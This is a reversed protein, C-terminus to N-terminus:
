RTWEWLTTGCDYVRVWGNQEMIEVETKSEDVNDEGLLKKLFRRQTSVRSLSEDTLPNVWRYSPGNNHVFRFGLLPYLNGRTHARDSFSRIRVPNYRRVYYSFLKSAGGVVSTNIMNCFRTLEVCDSLDEAGTGMTTRMKSFTMVSVLNDRYYLGLRVSSTCSGQRHNKDLFEKCRTYSIEAVKTDRAYIKNNNVGCINSIMSKIIDKKWNWEYGFIHYLFIGKNECALTKNLHYEVPKGTAAHIGTTSNHTYTPNMEIGLRVDPIYIDLEMPTIIKFTNRMISKEPLISVLFEYLEDEARSYHYSTINNLNRTNLIYGISSEVVGCRNSLESLTPKHNFNSRIYSEPDERFAILEDIKSPDTMRRSLFYRSRSVNDSGYRLLNTKRVSSKHEDTQTHWEKGYRELNTKKAKEIYEPTKVYRSVGYRKLSTETIKQQCERTQVYNKVGYKKLCTEQRKKVWKDSNQKYKISSVKVRCEKSCTIPHNASTIKFPKGCVVCNFYHDDLCVSFEDSTRRNDSFTKGCLACTHTFVKKKREEEQRIVKYKNKCESSCCPINEGCRYTVENGCVPCSGIRIKHCYKNSPRDTYFEDGCSQCVVKYRKIHAAKRSCEKSCYPIREGCRYTVPNGCIACKDHIVKKCYLQHASTPTFVDGCKKCVRSKM